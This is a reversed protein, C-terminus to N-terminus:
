IYVTMYPNIRISESHPSVIQEPCVFGCVSLCGVSHRRAFCQGDAPLVRPRTIIDAGHDAGKTEYHM